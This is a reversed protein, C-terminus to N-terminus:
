KWEGPTLYCLSFSTGSELIMADCASCWWFYMDHSSTIYKMETGDERCRLVLGDSRRLAKANSAEVESPKM